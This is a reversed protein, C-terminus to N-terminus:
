TVRSGFELPPPDTDDGVPPEPPKLLLEQREAEIQRDQAAAAYIPSVRFSDISQIVMAAIAQLLRDRMASGEQEGFTEEANNIRDLIGVPIQMTTVVTEPDQLQTVCLLRSM